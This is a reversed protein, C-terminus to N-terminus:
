TARRWAGFCNSNSTTPALRTSCADGETEMFEDFVTRGPEDSPRFGSVDDGGEGLWDHLRHGKTGLPNDKSDGPGAIFGDLSMSMCLVLNGM